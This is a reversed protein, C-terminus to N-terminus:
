SRRPIDSMARNGQSEGGYLWSKLTGPITGNGWKQNLIVNNPRHIGTCECGAMEAVSLGRAKQGKGYERM